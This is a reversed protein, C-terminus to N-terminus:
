ERRVIRYLQVAPRGVDDELSVAVRDASWAVSAWPQRPWAEAPLQVVDLWRGDPAFLDFTVTTSEALSRRVWTRGAADVHFQEFAPRQDPIKDVVFSQELLSRPPGDSGSTMARVQDDVLTRKAAASVPEPTYSRGFLAITDNGSRSVRLLYEATWATVFGGTPSVQQVDRPVFPVRIAMSIRDGDRVTWLGDAENAARYPVAVTDTKAGDFSIRLFRQAPGATTDAGTEIMRIVARGAGDLGIPAWYFGATSHADIFAGDSIRFTSARAQQPDQVLLTDGRVALWAARFEGPGGGERGITRLYAGAADYVKVEPPSSEAVLVAGSESVALDSPEMLEGPAGEAPQIRVLPELHWHGSDVPAASMTRVVGGPLTDVTVRSDRPREGSSCASLLSATLALFRAPRLVPAIARLSASPTM